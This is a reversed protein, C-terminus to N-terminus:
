ITKGDTLLNMRGQSVLKLTEKINKPRLREDVEKGINALRKQMFRITNVIEPTALLWASREEKKKGYRDHSRACDPLGEHLRALENHTRPPEWKGTFPDAIEATYSMHKPERGEVKYVAYFNMAISANADHTYGSGTVYGDAKVEVWLEWKGHIDQTTELWANLKKLCENVSKGEFRVDLVKNEIAFDATEKEDKSVHHSMSGGYAERAWLLKFEAEKNSDVLDSTENMEPKGGAPFKEPEMRTNPDHLKVKITEITKWTKM